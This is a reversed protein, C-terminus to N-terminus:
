QLVRPKTDARLYLPHKPSRDQNQGLCMLPKIKALTNQVIIGRNFLRGWTGWAAITMTSIRHCTRLHDDNYPGIPDITTKLITPDTSVIAFINVVTYGEFRLSKTFGRCRRQTPDDIVEDAISPNLMVFLLDHPNGGWSRTLEYRYKKDESFSAEWSEEPPKTKTM